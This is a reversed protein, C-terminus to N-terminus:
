SSLLLPSDNNLQLWLQPPPKLIKPQFLLDVFGTISNRLKSLPM